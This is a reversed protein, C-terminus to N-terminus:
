IGNILLAEFFATPGLMLVSIAAPLGWFCATAMARLVWRRARAWGLPRFHVIADVHRQGHESQHQQHEEHDQESLSSQIFL